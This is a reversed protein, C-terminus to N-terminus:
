LGGEYCVPPSTHKRDYLAGKQIYVLVAVGMFWGGAWGM